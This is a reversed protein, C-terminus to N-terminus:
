LSDKDHTASIFCMCIIDTDARSGHGQAATNYQLCLLSPHDVRNLCKPHIHRLLSPLHHFCSALQLHLPGLNNTLSVAIATANGFVRPRVPRVATFGAYLHATM